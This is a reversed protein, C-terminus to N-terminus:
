DRWICGPDISVVLVARGAAQWVALLHRAQRGASCGGLRSHLRGGAKHNTPLVISGAHGAIGARHNVLVGHILLPCLLCGCIVPLPCTLRCMRQWLRSRGALQCYLWRLKWIRRCCTHTGAQAPHLATGLLCMM